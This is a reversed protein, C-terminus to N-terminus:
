RRRVVRSDRDRALAGPPAHARQDPPESPLIALLGPKNEALARRLPEGARDVPDFMIKGRERDIWLSVGARMATALTESVTM